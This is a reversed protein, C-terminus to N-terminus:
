NVCLPSGECREGRCGPDDDNKLRSAFDHERPSAWQCVSNVPAHQGQITRTESKALRRMNPSNSRFQHTPAFAPLIVTDYSIIDSSSWVNIVANSGDDQATRRVSTVTACSYTRM